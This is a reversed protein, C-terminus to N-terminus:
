NRRKHIQKKWLLTLKTHYEKDKTHYLCLIDGGFDRRDLTSISHYLEPNKFRTLALLCGCDSEEVESVFIISMDLRNPDIEKEWGSYMEDLQKAAEEVALALKDYDYSM